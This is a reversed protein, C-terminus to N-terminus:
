IELLMDIYGDLEKNDGMEKFGLRKYWEMTWKEKETKIEVKTVGCDVAMSIAFKHLEKAIGCRRVTPHVMLSGFYAVQPNKNEICFNMMALGDKKIITYSIGWTWTNVHVIYDQKM